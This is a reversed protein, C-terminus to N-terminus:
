RRGRVARLQELLYGAAGPTCSTIQVEGGTIAERVKHVTVVEGGVVVAVKDRALRARGLARLQSATPYFLSEPSTQQHFREFGAFFNHRSLVRGALCCGVFACGVGLLLAPAALLAQRAPGPHDGTM